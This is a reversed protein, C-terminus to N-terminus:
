KKQHRKSLSATDEMEADGKSKKDDAVASELIASCGKELRKSLMKQREHLMSASPSYYKFYGDWSVDKLNARVAIMKKVRETFQVANENPRKQQPELFWIDCVFCWSKMIRFIHRM